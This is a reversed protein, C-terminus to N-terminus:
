SFLSSIDDLSYRPKRRPEHHIKVYRNYSLIENPEMVIDIHELLLVVKGNSTVIQVSGIHFSQMVYPLEIFFLDNM